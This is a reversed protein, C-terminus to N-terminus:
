DVAVGALIGSAADARPRMEVSACCRRAAAQPRFAVDGARRGACYRGDPFGRGRRTKREDSGNSDRFTIAAVPPVHMLHSTCAARAATADNDSAVASAPAASALCFRASPPTAVADLTSDSTRLEDHPSPLQVASLAISPSRSDRHAEAYESGCHHCTSRPWSRRISVTSM